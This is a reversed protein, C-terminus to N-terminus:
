GAYVLYLSKKDVSPLNQRETATLAILGELKGPQGNIKNRLEAQIETRTM